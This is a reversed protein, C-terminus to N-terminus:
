GSIVVAVNAVTKAPASSSLSITANGGTVLLSAVTGSGLSVGASDSLTVQANKTGCTAAVGTLNVASVVYQSTGANYTTTYSGVVVGDTDCSAVTTADAGLGGGTLGGLSAASASVAAFAAVAAVIALTKKQKSM